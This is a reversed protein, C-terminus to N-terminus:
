HGLRMLMLLVRDPRIFTKYTKIKRNRSIFKSRFLRSNAYYARNGIQIRDHITTNIFVENDIINGLYRFKNVAHFSNDEICLNYLNIRREISLKASIEM